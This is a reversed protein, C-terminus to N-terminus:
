LSTAAPAHKATKSDRLKAHHRAFALPTEGKKSVHKGAELAKIGPGNSAAESRSRFVIRKDPKQLLRDKTIGSKTCYAKGHWVLAKTGVREEYHHGNPAIYM